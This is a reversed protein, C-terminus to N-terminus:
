SAPKVVLKAEMGRERHSKMFPLKKNCYLPYTGATQPTFRLTSSQGGSVDASLDLGAAPEKLTFNHPTIKDDNVLTLEVPRGAIVEIIEPQFRYDGLHATVQQADADAAHGALPVTILLVCALIASFGARRAARESKNDKEM